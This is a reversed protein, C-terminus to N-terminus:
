NNTWEYIIMIKDVIKMNDLYYINKETFYKCGTEGLM